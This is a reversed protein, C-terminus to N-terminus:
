LKYFTKWNKEKRHTKASYDGNAGEADKDVYRMPPVPDYGGKSFPNCRLIRWICLLGGKWAGYREIAELGYQSCSPFKPCKTSKM